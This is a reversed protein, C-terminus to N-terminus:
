GSLPLSGLGRYELAKIWRPSGSCRLDPRRRLLADLARAAILRALSRGLCSRGGQSFALLSVPTRWPDFVDPQAVYDPDRQASGLGILIPTGAALTGLRGTTEAHLTRRLFQVPAEFRLTEDIVALADLDGTLLASRVDPRSVVLHLANGILHRVTAQAIVFFLVCQSVVLDVDSPDSGCRGLLAQLLPGASGDIAKDISDILHGCASQAASTDRRTRFRNDVWGCLTDTESSVRPLTTDDLGMLRILAATPAKQAYDAAGDFSENTGVTAAVDAVSQTIVDDYRQVPIASLPREILTRIRAHLDGRAYLVSTGIWQQLLAFDALEPDPVPFFTRLRDPQVTTAGLFHLADAHGFIGVAGNSGPVAYYREAERYAAYTPYRDAFFAASGIEAVSTDLRANM